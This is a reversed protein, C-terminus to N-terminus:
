LEKDPFPNAYAQTLRWKGHAMHLFGFNQLYGDVNTILLNFTM